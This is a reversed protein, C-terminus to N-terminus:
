FTSRITKMNASYKMLNQVVVCQNHHFKRYNNKLHKPVGKFYMIKLFEKRFRNMGKAVKANKM